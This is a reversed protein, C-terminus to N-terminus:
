DKKQDTEDFGWVLPFGEEEWSGLIEQLDYNGQSIGAKTIEDTEPNRKVYVKEYTFENLFGASVDVKIHSKDKFHNCKRAFEETLEADYIDSNNRDIESEIVKMSLGPVNLEKRILDLGETGFTKLDLLIAYGSRSAFSVTFKM